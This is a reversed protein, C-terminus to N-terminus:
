LNLIYKTPSTLGNVLYRTKLKEIVSTMDIKKLVSVVVLHSPPPIVYMSLKRGGAVHDISCTISISHIHLYM